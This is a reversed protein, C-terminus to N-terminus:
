ISFRELFVEPRKEKEWHAVVDLAPSRRAEAVQRLPELLVVDGPDLRKLGRAAIEVLDLAYDALTGSGAKAALGKV